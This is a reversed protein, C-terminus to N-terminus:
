VDMCLRWAVQPALESLDGNADLAIMGITDHNEINAIPKYDSNKLWEKWEEPRRSTFKRQCGKRFLLNCDMEVLM